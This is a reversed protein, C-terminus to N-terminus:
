SERRANYAEVRHWVETVTEVKTETAAEYQAVTDLLAIAFSKAVSPPMVLGVAPRPGFSVISTIESASFTNAFGNFFVLPMPTTALAQMMARQHEPSLGSGSM